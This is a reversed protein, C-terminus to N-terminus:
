VTTAPSLLLSKVMAVIEPVIVSPTDLAILLKTGVVLKDSFLANTISVVPGESADIAVITTSLEVWIVITAEEEVSAPKCAEGYQNSSVVPPLPAVSEVSQCPEIM